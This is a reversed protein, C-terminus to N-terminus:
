WRVGSGARAYLKKAPSSFRATMPTVVEVPLARSVSPTSTDDTV